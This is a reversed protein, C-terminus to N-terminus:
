RGLELLAGQGATLWLGNKQDFPSLSGDVPSVIKISDHSQTTTLTFEASRELSLNVIMVYADASSDKFEGVMVPTACSVAKILDGPLLPLSKAPAPAPLFGSRPLVISGIAPELSTGAVMKISNQQM